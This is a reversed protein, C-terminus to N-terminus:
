PNGRDCNQKIENIRARYHLNKVHTDELEEVVDRYKKVLEIYKDFIIMYNRKPIGGLFQIIWNRM